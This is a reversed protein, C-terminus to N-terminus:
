AAEKDAKKAADKEAKAADKEAQDVQEPSLFSTGTLQGMQQKVRELEADLEALTRTM